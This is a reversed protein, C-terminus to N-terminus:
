ASTMCVSPSGLPRHVRCSPPIIRHTTSASLPVAVLAARSTTAIFSPCFQAVEVGKEGRSSNGKAWWGSPVLVVGAGWTKHRQPLRPVRLLRPDPHTDGAMRPSFPSPRLCLAPAEAQCPLAAWVGAEATSCCRHHARLCPVPADGTMARVAGTFGGEGGGGQAIGSYHHTPVM